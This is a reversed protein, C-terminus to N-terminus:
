REAVPGAFHALLCDIFLVTKRALLRRSPTVIWLRSPEATWEPLLQVLRGSQVGELAQAQPYWIPGAGALALRLLMGSTTATIQSNLTVSAQRQAHRLELREIRTRGQLIVFQHKALDAPTRPAPQQSLYSPSAYIGWSLDTLRRATLESDSLVGARLALDYQETALDVFRSSEDLEVAVEPYRQCFDTIAAHLRPDNLDPPMTVRLKGRPRDAIDGAYRLANDAEEALRQCHELFGTGAETLVLRRTTKHLLRSGVREELAAMRRSITSKPLGLSQGARTLSGARAVAAFLLMDTVDTFM